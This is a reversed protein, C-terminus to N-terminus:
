VDYEIYTVLVGAPRVANVDHTFRDREEDTPYGMVAIEVEGHREVLRPGTFVQKIRQWITLPPLCVVEQPVRVGFSLRPEAESLVRLFDTLTAM